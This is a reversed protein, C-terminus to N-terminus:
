SGGKMLNRRYAYGVPPEFHNSLFVSSHSQYSEAIALITVVTHSNNPIGIKNLVM